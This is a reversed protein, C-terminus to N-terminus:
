GIGGSGQAPLDREGDKERERWDRERGRWDGKRDCKNEEELRNM